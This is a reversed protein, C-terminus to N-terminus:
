NNLKIYKERERKLETQLILNQRHEQLLLAFITVGNVTSINKFIDKLLYGNKTKYCFISTFAVRLWNCPYKNLGKDNKITGIIGQRQSNEYFYPWVDIIFESYYNLDHAKKLQPAEIITRKRKNRTIEFGVKTRDKVKLEAM